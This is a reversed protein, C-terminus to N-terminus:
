EWNQEQVVPIGMELAVNLEKRAGESSEWGRLMFIAECKRLAAIDAELVREVLEQSANIEEPAAISDGIEMPNVAKFGSDSLRKAWYAFKWRNYDLVGRMKGSIYVSMGPLMVYSGSMVTDEM